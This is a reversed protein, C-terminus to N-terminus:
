RSSQGHVAYLLPDMVGHFSDRIFLIEFGATWNATISCNAGTNLQAPPVTFLQVSVSSLAAIAPPPVTLKAQSPMMASAFVIVLSV